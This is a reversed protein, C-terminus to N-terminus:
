KQSPHSLLAVLPFLPPLWRTSFDDKLENVGTGVLSFEDWGIEVLPVSRGTGCVEEAGHHERCGIRVEGGFTFVPTQEGLTKWALISSVGPPSVIRDVGM